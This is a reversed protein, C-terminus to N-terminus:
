YQNELDELLKKAKEKAQTVGNGLWFTINGDSWEISYKDNVDDCKILWGTYALKDNIEYYLLDGICHKM